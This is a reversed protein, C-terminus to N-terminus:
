AGAIWRPMNRLDFIDKVTIKSDAFPIYWLYFREEADIGNNLATDTDLKATGDGRNVAVYIYTTETITIETDLEEDGGTIEKMVGSICALKDTITDFGRVKLKDVSIDYLGFPEKFPEVRPNEDDFVIENLIDDQFLDTIQAVQQVQRTNKEILKMAEDVVRNVLDDHEEQKTTKEEETPRQDQDDKKGSESSQSEDEITDSAGTIVEVIKEAIKETNENDYDASASESQVKDSNSEKGM